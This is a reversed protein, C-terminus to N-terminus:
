RIIHWINYEAEFIFFHVNFIRGELIQLKNETLLDHEVIQSGMSQLVGPEETRKKRM